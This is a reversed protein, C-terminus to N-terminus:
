ARGRGSRERLYENLSPGKAAEVPSQRVASQSPARVEIRGISVEIIQEASNPEPREVRSAARLARVLDPGASAAMRPTLARAFEQTAAFTTEREEMGVQLVAGSKEHEGAQHIAALDRALSPQPKSRKDQGPRDVSAAPSELHSHSSLKLESAARGQSVDDEPAWPPYEAHTATNVGSRSPVSQSVGNGNGDSSAFSTRVEKIPGKSKSPLSAGPQALESSLLGRARVSRSPHGPGAEAEQPSRAGYSQVSGVVVSRQVSQEVARSVEPFQSLPGRDLTKPAQGRAPSHAVEDDAVETEMDWSSRPYRESTAPAFMSPVEPRLVSTPRAESPQAAQRLSRSVLNTLYGSM